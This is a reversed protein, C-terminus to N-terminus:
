FSEGPQVFPVISRFGLPTSEPVTRKVEDRDTWESNLFRVTSRAFVDDLASIVTLSGALPYWRKRAVVRALKSSLYYGFM